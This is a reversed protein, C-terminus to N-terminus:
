GEPPFIGEGSDTLAGDANVFEWRMDAPAIDKERLAIVWSGQSVQGGMARYGVVRVRSVIAPAVGYVFTNWEEDADGGYSILNLSERADGVPSSAISQVSWGNPEAVFYM